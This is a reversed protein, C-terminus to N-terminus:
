KRFTAMKWFVVFLFFATFIIGQAQLYVNEPAGGKLIDPQIASSEFAANSYIHEYVNISLSGSFAEASIRNSNNAYESNSFNGTRYAYRVSNEPVSFSYANKAPIKEKSFVFYLDPKSSYYYSNSTDTFTYAIYFPYGKQAMTPVLFEIVNLQNQSFM